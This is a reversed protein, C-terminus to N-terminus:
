YIYKHKSIQIKDGGRISNYIKTFDNQLETHEVQMNMIDKRITEFVDEDLIAKRDTEGVTEQFEELLAEFHMYLLQHSCKMGELIPAHHNLILGDIAEKVEGLM